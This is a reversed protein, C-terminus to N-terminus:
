LVFVRAMKLSKCYILFVENMFELTINKLNDLNKLNVIMNQNERIWNQKYYSINGDIWNARYKEAKTIYKINFFRNYPIWELADSVEYKSHVASQSDQIFKDIDNNGSTWNIFNQQFHIAYCIENCKKCKKNLVMM